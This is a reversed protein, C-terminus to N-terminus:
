EFPTNKKLCVKLGRLAVEVGGEVMEDGEVMEVVGVGFHHGIICVVQILAYLLNMILTIVGNFM